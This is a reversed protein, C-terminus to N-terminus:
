ILLRKERIAMRSITTQNVMFLNAVLQQSFGNALLGLALEKQRSSLGARNVRRGKRDMDAINDRMTGLFLHDPNVCTKVDCKHLVCLNKPIEGKFLRYAVQHAKSPKGEFWFQGYGDRKVTSQWLHCEGEVRIKGLFRQVPDTIKFTM